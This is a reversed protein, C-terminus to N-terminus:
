PKRRIIYIFFTGIYLTVDLQSIIDYQIGENEIHNNLSKVEEGSVMTVDGAYAIGMTVWEARVMKLISASALKHKKQVEVAPIGKVQDGGSESTTQIEYVAGTDNMLMLDRIVRNSFGTVPM